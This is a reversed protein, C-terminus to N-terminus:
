ATRKWFYVVIYPQVVSTSDNTLAVDATRTTGNTSAAGTNFTSPTSTDGAHYGFTGGVFGANHLNNQAVQHTHSNVTFTPQTAVSVNSAVTKAGGTEEATDFDTDNPDQGILVKGTGFAEWTGFGLISKDSPNTSSTTTYICGIPFCRQVIQDALSSQARLGIVQRPLMPGSSPLPIPQLGGYNKLPDYENM